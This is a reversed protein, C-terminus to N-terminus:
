TIDRMAFMVPQRTTVNNATPLVPWVIALSMQM